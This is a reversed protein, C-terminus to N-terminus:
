RAAKKFAARVACLSVLGFVFLAIGAGLLGLLTLLDLIIQM